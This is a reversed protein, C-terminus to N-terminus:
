GAQKVRIKMITAISVAREKALFAKPGTFLEDVTRKFYGLWTEFHGPLIPSKAHLVMHPQMANKRYTDSGFLINDWFDVLVLLHHDLDIRAVETFLYSISPDALLKDYFSRMLLYLDDRNRIDPKNSVFSETYNKPM